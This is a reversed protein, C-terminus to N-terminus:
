ETVQFIERKGKYYMDNYGKMKEAMKEANPGKSYGKMEEEFAALSEFQTELVVTHMNSVLDTMVRSNKWDLETTIERFLRALKSAQGPKATFIDRVILM